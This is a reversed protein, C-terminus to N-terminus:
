IIPLGQVEMMEEQPSPRPAFPQLHPATNHPQQATSASPLTTHTRQAFAQTLRLQQQKHTRRPSRATVIRASQQQQM